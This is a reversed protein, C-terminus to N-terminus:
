PDPDPSFLVLGPFYFHCFTMSQIKEDVVLSCVRIKHQRHSFNDIVLDRRRTKEKSFVCCNKQKVNSKTTSFLKKM